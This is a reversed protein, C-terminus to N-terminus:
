RSLKRDFTRGFMRCAEFYADISHMVRILCHKKCSKRCSKRGLM